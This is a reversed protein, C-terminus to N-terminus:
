RDPISKILSQINKILLYTTLSKFVGKIFIKMNWAKETQRTTYFDYPVKPTM